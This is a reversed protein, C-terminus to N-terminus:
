FKNKEKNPRWMTDVPHSEPTANEDEWYIKITKDGECTIFRSGSKDFTSAFIAAESELSGPQVITDLKQFPYGTNWDWFVMSGNDAGSVLVNEQNLAITNIISNHGSFNSIFDGAPLKWKKINDASATAFTFETPHILSARIGKKHHTLTSITKGMGLDWLKVTSDESGSIIQPDVSQTVVSTITNTHGTLVHIENKTRIDWVRVTSDIGGTVLIDLKPHMSLSYVGSLHGHYYRIAKNQELDWCKVMKDEGCSFLYNHRDSVVLGRVTAIHGTLTVKLTGSALDWLKITRDAAGTCFWENGPEVAISRVWGLHGSIVSKLKWPPHWKPKKYQQIHALALRTQNVPLINALANSGKNFEVIGTSTVNREANKKSMALDSIVSEVTADGIHKVGDDLKAKKLPPELSSTSQPTDTQEVIENKETNKLTNLPPLDKVHFYEGFIKASIKAKNSLEDNPVPLNVNSLFVDYARKLSKLCLYQQKNKGSM